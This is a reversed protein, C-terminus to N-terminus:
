VYEFSIMETQHAQCKTFEDQLLRALPQLILSRAWESNDTEDVASSLFRYTTDMSILLHQHVLDLHDNCFETDCSETVRAPREDLGVVDTPQLHIPLWTPTSLRRPGCHYLLLDGEYRLPPLSWTRPTDFFYKAPESALNPLYGLTPGVHIDERLM